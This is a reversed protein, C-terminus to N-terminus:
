LRVGLDVSAGLTGDNFGLGVLIVQGRVFVRDTVGTDLGVKLSVPVNRGERELTDFGRILYDFWGLRATGNFRWPDIGDRFPEDPKAAAEVRM